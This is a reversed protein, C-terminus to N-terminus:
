FEELRSPEDLAPPAYSNTATAIDDLKPLAPAARKAVATPPAKRVRKRKGAV